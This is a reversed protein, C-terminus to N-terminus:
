PQQGRKAAVPIPRRQHDDVAIRQGAHWDTVSAAATGYLRKVIPRTLLM